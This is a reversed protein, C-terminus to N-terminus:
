YIGHTEYFSDCVSKETLYINSVSLEATILVAKNLHVFCFINHRLAWPTLPINYYVSAKKKKSYM